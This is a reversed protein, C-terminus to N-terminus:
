GPHRAPRSRARRSRTCASARAAGARLRSLPLRGRARGQDPGDRQLQARGEARRPLEHRVPQRWREDAARGAKGHPHFFPLLHGDRQGFGKPAATRAARGAPRGEAGLRDLAGPHRAAGTRRRHARVAGGARGAELRRAAHLDAGGAEAGAARRLSQGERQPLHDGPGRGARPVAAACGYAISHENAIGVVLAKRTRSSPVPFKLTM